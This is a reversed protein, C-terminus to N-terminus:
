FNSYDPSTLKTSYTSVRLQDSMGFGTEIEVQIKIQIARMFSYLGLEPAKNM